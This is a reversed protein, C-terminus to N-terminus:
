AARELGLKRRLTAIATVPESSWIQWLSGEPGVIHFGHMTDPASRPRTWTAIFGAHELEALASRIAAEISPATNM